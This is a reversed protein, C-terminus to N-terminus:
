FEDEDEVLEEGVEDKKKEDIKKQAEDLKHFFSKINGRNIWAALLTFLIIGAVIYPESSNMLREDIKFTQIGCFIIAWIMAGMSFMLLSIQIQNYGACKRFFPMVYIHIILAALALAIFFFLVTPLKQLNNLMNVQNLECIAQALYNNGANLSANFGELTMNIM